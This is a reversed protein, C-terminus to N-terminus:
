VSRLRIEHSVQNYLVATIGLILGMHIFVNNVYLNDFLSHVTLYTWSGLIGIGILRSMIDPHQRLRWIVWMIVLWGKGYGLFGILGSEALINLYYNHAHGLPEHWNILRYAPYVVEYNGLGVGLWPHSAAMNLAAQWHALRETVAYNEPTIDVGRMDQYTFYDQTSTSIREVISAPLLGASWLFLLGAVMVGALLLGTWVRRPLALLVLVAAAGLALWAGRSWSMLIGLLLCVAVLAYFTAILANSLSRQRWWRLSYGLAAMMIIPALLGLFGGFPNPQGFSGFARFFHGTIRLHEAGSGGFFQYFGILANALGAMALGFILWQWQRRAFTTVVVIVMFLMQLWKAWETIWASISTANFVSLGTLALISILALFIPNWRLRFPARRMIYRQVLWAAAFALLGLQGIDLPLPWAAETAVLTRLPAAILLFMLAAAPTLAAFLIYAAMGLVLLATPLPLLAVAVGLAAALGIWGLGPNLRTTLTM